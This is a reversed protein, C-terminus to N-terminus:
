YQINSCKFLDFQYVYSANQVSEFISIQFLSAITDSDGEIKHLFYAGFSIIISNINNNNKQKSIELELSATKQPMSLLM